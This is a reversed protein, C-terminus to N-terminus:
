QVTERRMVTSAQLPTSGNIFIPTPLWSVKNFAVQVTVTIPTGYGATVPDTPVDVTAGSIRAGSLYNNVTDKVNQVTTGDLVAVRAGERSANTIIQQVMVMRGFEIMGFVFLFFVPAIIAFEIIAAGKRTRRSMRCVKELKVQNSRTNRSLLSADFRASKELNHDRSLTPSNM